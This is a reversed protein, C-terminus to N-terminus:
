WQVRSYGDTPTGCWVSFDDRVACLARPGLSVIHELGSVEVAATHFVSPRGFTGACRVTGNALLACMYCPSGAAIQIAHEIGEVRSVGSAPPEGCGLFHGGWCWMTGDERLACANNAAALQVVGTLPAIGTDPACIGSSPDGPEYRDCSVTGASDAVCMSESVAVSRAHVPWGTRRPYPVVIGATCPPRDPALMSLTMAGWAWLSGDSRRAVYAFGAFRPALM